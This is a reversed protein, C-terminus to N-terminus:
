RLQVMPDVADFQMRRDPPLGAEAPLVRVSPVVGGAEVNPRGSEIGLGTEFVMKAAVLAARQHPGVADAQPGVQEGIKRGHGPFIRDGRFRGVCLFEALEAIGHVM